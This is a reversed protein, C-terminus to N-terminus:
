RQVVGAKQLTQLVLKEFPASTPARLYGAGRSLCTREVGAAFRDWQRRYEELVADTVHVTMRGDAELGELQVAGALPPSADFEDAIHLLIVEDGRARLVALAPSLDEGLDMADTLVIVTGTQGGGGVIEDVAHGLRTRGACPMESLFDLVTLIQGSNRGTRLGQGLSEAFPLLRVRDLSVMAVYALAAATRRAYDFKRVVGASMSASADILLSVAGESHEHFLRLLLREMRAYYPWDLFRIDDGPAYPRHDAFELGDGLSRSRRRGGASPAAAMRKALLGLRQLRRLFEEDFLDHDSM